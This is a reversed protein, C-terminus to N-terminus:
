SRAWDREVTTWSTRLFEKAAHGSEDSDEPLTRWPSLRFADGEDLRRGAGRDECSDLLSLHRPTEAESRAASGGPPTQYQEKVHHTTGVILFYDEETRKWEEALADTETLPIEDIQRLFIIGSRRTHKGCCSVRQQRQEAWGAFPLHLSEALPLLREFLRRDGPYIESVGQGSKEACSAPSIRGLRSPLNTM